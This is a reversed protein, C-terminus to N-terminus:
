SMRAASRWGRASRNPASDDQANDFLAEDVCWDILEERAERDGIKDGYHKTSSWSKAYIVHAGEMAGARDDTETVSGGSAEAAAAAKQM